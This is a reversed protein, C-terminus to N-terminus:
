PPSRSTAGDFGAQVIAGVDGQYHTEVYAPSFDAERCNCNNMDALLPLLLWPQLSRWAYRPPSCPCASAHRPLALCTHGLCITSVPALAPLVCSVGGMTLSKSHAYDVLPKMGGPFRTENVIPRGAADHFSGQYGAGCKQWGDDVGASAFGLDALSTPAGDVTRSTNVLADVVARMKADSIELGQAPARRLV